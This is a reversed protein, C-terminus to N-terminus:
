QEIMPSFANINVAGSTPTYYILSEQNFDRFYVYQTTMQIDTYIGEKVVEQSSGDIRMRCLAPEENRAYYIYEGNINFCDVREDTLPRTEKTTLDTRTLCYNNSVDLYYAIGNVVIPMWCSGEYVLATSTTETNMSYINGNRSLGNYYLKNGVMNCTYFPENEVMEKGTGDIKIRYMTTANDTDYHLYYLYNGSLAVYMSPDTDLIKVKNTKLDLRCLGNNSWNLFSFDTNNDRNNRAYYVYHEDANIFTVTDDCLKKAEGGVLPMVYLCFDDNPNAFYLNGNAECFLGGNYLNGAINGNVPTDNYHTLNSVYQLITLGIVVILISLIIIVSKKKM